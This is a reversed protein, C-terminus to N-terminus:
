KDCRQNNDAAGSEARRRLRGLGENGRAIAAVDSIAGDCRRAAGDGVRDCLDLGASQDQDNVGAIVVARDFNGLVHSDGGGWAHSRNEAGRNGVTGDDTKTIARRRALCVFAVGQDQAIQDKVPLTHRLIRRAGGFDSQQGFIAHEGAQPEADEGVARSKVLEFIADELGQFGAEIERRVACRLGRRQGDNLATTELRYREGPNVPVGVRLATAYQFYDRTIREEVM